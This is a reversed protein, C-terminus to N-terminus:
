EYIPPQLTEEGSSDPFTTYHHELMREICYDHKDIIEDVEEGFWERDIYDKIFFYAKDTLQINNEKYQQWAPDIQNVAMDRTANSDAEVFMILDLTDLRDLEAWVDVSQAGVQTEAWSLDTPYPLLDTEQDIQYVIKQIHSASVSRGIKDLTYLILDSLNPNTRLPAM